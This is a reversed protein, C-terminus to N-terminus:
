PLSLIWAWAVAVVRRLRAPTSASQRWQAEARVSDLTVGVVGTSNTARQLAGVAIPGFALREPSTGLERAAAENSLWRDEAVTPAAARILRDDARRLRDQLGVLVSHGRATSRCM